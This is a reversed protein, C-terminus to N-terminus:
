GKIWRPASPRRIPRGAVTAGAGVALYDDQPTDCAADDPIAM